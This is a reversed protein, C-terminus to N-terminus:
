VDSYDKCRLPCGFMFAAPKEPSAARMHRPRPRQLTRASSPGASPAGLRGAARAPAVSALGLDRAMIAAVKAATWVGVDGPLIKARERLTALVHPDPPDAQRRQRLTPRRPEVARLPRSARCIGRGVGGCSGARRTVEACSRGEALLRIVQVHRALTADRKDRLGAPLEGVSPYGRGAGHRGGEADNPLVGFGEIRAPFGPWHSGILRLGCSVTARDM